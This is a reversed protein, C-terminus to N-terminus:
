STLKHDLPRRTEQRLSGYKSLQNVLRYDSRTLKAALKPPKSECPDGWSLTLPHNSSLRSYALGLSKKKSQSGQLTYMCVTM